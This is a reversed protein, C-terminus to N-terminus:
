VARIRSQARGLAFECTAALTRLWGAAIQEGNADVLQM